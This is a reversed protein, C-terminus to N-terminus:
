KFEFEIRREKKIYKNIVDEYFKNGNAKQKFILEKDISIISLNNMKEQTQILRCYTNIRKLSSFSREM